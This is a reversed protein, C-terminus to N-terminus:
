ASSRISGEKLPVLGFFAVFHEQVKFSMPISQVQLNVTSIMFQKLLPVIKVRTYQWSAIGLTFTISSMPKTHAVAFHAIRFVLGQISEVRKKRTSPDRTLDVVLRYSPVREDPPIGDIHRKMLNARRARVELQM